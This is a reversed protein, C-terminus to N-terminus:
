ASVLARRTKWDVDPYYSEVVLLNPGLCRAQPCHCHYRGALDSALWREWITTFSEERINGLPGLDAFDAVLVDGTLSSVNLRNRGDPDNRITTNPQSMVYQWLERHSPDPSCAFFPFTGFLIWVRPDRRALLRRVGGALEDLSALQMHRAFDSPYLPHIEHRVCGLDAIRAHIVDIKPLTAHTLLTEASVFVGQAALAQINADMRRLLAEPDKPQHLAHAYAIRAFEAPEPYNYSIHLVDVWEIFSEYRELPLTLNTNVQTRLGRAKAYQLLPRTVEDVLKQSAAPEGGTVSFTLLTDVEDIRAYLEELTILREEDDTLQDGVACHECRLNCTNTVTVEISTLLPRPALGVTLYPDWPDHDPGIAEERMAALRRYLEDQAVVSVAM